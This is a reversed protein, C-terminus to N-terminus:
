NIFVALTAFNRDLRTAQGHDRRLMLGLVEVRDDVQERVLDLPLELFVQFFDLSLFPAGRRRSLDQARSLFRLAIGARSPPCRPARMAARARGPPEGVRM